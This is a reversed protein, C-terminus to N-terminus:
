RLTVQNTQSSCLMMEEETGPVKHGHMCCYSKATAVRFEAVQNYRTYTDSYRGPCNDRLKNFETTATGVTFSSDCGFM